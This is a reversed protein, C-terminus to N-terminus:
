FAFESEFSPCLLMSGMGSDIVRSEREKKILIVDYLFRSQLGM